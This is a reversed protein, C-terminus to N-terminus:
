DYRRDKGAGAMRKCLRMGTYPRCARGTAQKIRDAEATSFTDLSYGGFAGSMVRSETRNPLHALWNMVAKTTPQANPNVPSVTHAYSPRSVAFALLAAFISCVINKKM